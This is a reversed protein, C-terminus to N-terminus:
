SDGFTHAGWGQMNNRINDATQRGAYYQQKDSTSQQQQRNTIIKGNEDLFIQNNAIPQPSQTNHLWDAEFGKWQKQVIISLVANIDQNTLRVQNIFNNFARETNVAKKAKRIKLWEDVLEPAFGEALMAKRFNFPPPAPAVQPSTEKKANLPQEKKEGEGFEVCVSKQKEKELLSFDNVNVNDNVNLPSKSKKSKEFVLQKKQKEKSEELENTKLPRGGKAGAEKRKEKISIYKQTDRDITQKVFGFAVKALPKLEILNGYIAYETIAQYVELQVESPLDRIVNLWDKYFVFTEREM